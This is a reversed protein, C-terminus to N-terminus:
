HANVFKMIDGVTNMRAADEDSIEIKLKEELEMLLQLGKPSDIGLDAALEHEPKIATKEQRAIKAIVELVQDQRDSM